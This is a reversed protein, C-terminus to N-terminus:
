EKQYYKGHSALWAHFKDMEQPKLETWGLPWAMAWEWLSPVLRAHSLGSQRVTWKALDDPVVGDLSREAYNKKMPTRKWDTATPTPFFGFGNESTHLKPTRLPYLEGDQMMGWRPWTASFEDLGELLSCQRTKWSRSDRDYKALSGRWKEGSDAASETLEQEKEPQALTKAHFGERYLTLLEEGNEVTLIELTMGYRSLRSFGTTKDSCLYAQAIPTSKLRAFPKGDSCSEASYEEAREPLSHLNELNHAM